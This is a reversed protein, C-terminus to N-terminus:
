RRSVDVGAGSVSSPRCFAVLKGFPSYTNLGAAVITVSTNNAPQEVEWLAAVGVGDDDVEDARVLVEVVVDEAGTVCALEAVAM